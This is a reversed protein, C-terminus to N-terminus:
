DGLVVQYYQLLENYDLYYYYNFRNNHEKLTSRFCSFCAYCFRNEKYSYFKRLSKKFGCGECEGSKINILRTQFNTNKGSM